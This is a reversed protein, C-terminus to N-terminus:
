NRLADVGNALASEPVREGRGADSSLGPFATRRPVNVPALGQQEARLILEQFRPLRRVFISAQEDKWLLAWDERHQLYRTGSSSNWLLAIETPYDDLLACHPPSNEDMDRFDLFARELEASYVTRYRGDFAIPCQPFLHWIVCQAWGYETVLNGAIQERRIIEIAALPVGPADGNTEVVLDWPRLQYERLAFVGRLHLVLLFGILAAILGARLTRKERGQWRATLQPFMRRLGDSMPGPLLILMCIMMLAVHRLHSFAQWGVVALLALDIWQWRKGWIFALPFYVFPAAYVMSFKVQWLSQWERVAQEPILHESLMSYLGVGYPNCLSGVIALLMAAWCALAGDPMKRGRIAHLAYGGCFVAHIGLGALFGGHHNVWVAMLLPTWWLGRSKPNDWQARLLELYLAFLAFTVMQPRVFVVFQSLCKASITLLLAASALSAQQRFHARAAVLFIILAWFNRWMWLGFPGAVRWLYGMEYESLWEHNTWTAGAATFSFPDYHELLLGQEIARLGYLTHGWIDPDAITLGCTFLWASLWLLLYLIPIQRANDTETSM